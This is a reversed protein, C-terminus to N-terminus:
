GAIALPMEADNPIAEQEEAPAITGAAGWSPFPPLMLLMITTVALGGACWALASAYSGTADFGMGLFFPGIASGIMFASFIWGYITGFSRLGFYRSVLMALLDSEAGAGIGLLAVGILYVSPTASSPM